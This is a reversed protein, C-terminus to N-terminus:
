AVVTDNAGRRRQEGYAAPREPDDDAPDFRLFSIAVDAGLRALAVATAAGIGHNAGTVLASRGHLVDVEMAGANGCGVNGGPNGLFSCKLGLHDTGICNPIDAVGMGVEDSSATRCAMSWSTATM